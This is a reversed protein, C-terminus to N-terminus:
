EPPSCAEYGVWLWGNGQNTFQGVVVTRGDPATLAVEGESPPVLRMDARALHPFEAWAAAADDLLEPGVAGPAVGVSAAEQAPTLCELIFPDNTAADVTNDSITEGPYLCASSLVLLCIPAVFKM